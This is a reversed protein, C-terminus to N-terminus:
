GSKVKVMFEYGNPVPMKEFDFTVGRGQHDLSLWLHCLAIGADIQNMRGYVAARIINLKVRSIIIRGPDGSFFWPQTNSSSPALRVPELLEDAGSISTIDSLSKRRFESNATRHVDNGTKGFGLMIVFELGNKQEPVQKSPKALGLWCSGLGNASLYLDVQQLIFGANMLYNNKKESYLCVYHPAKIPFINKVDTTDLYSLEYRIGGDLPRVAGAYEQLEAFDAAPIPTMDFKRISRRHFIAEYLQNNTM